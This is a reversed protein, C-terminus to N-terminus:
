DENKIRKEIFSRLYTGPTNFDKPRISMSRVHYGGRAKSSTLTALTQPITFAVSAGDLSGREAREDAGLAMLQNKNRLPSLNSKAKDSEVTNSGEPVEINPPNDQKHTVSGDEDSQEQIPDEEIIGSKRKAADGPETANM